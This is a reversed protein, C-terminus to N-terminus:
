IFNINLKNLINKIKQPYKSVIKEVSNHSKLEVLKIKSLESILESYSTKLRLNRLKFEIISRILYALICIFIHAKVRNESFHYIPRLKIQSKIYKFASEVKWKDIYTQIIEKPRLSLDNSIIVYKGFRNKTNIVENQDLEYGFTNHGKNTTMINIKFLKKYPRIIKNISKTLKETNKNRNKLGEKLGNLKEQIKMISVNFNDEQIKRMEPSLILVVTFKYGHDVIRKFYYFLQEGSTLKVPKMDEFKINYILDKAIKESSKVGTIFKINHESMKLRLNKQFMGRDTIITFNEVGGSERLENVVFEITSWDMTNGPFVWHRLPFKTEKSIVLGIVVQRKDPRHDRSYDFYAIPCKTGEFYTSTIDYFLISMDAGYIDKLRTIM